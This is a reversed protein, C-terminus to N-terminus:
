YAKAKLRFQANIDKVSTDTM